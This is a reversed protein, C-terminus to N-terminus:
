DDDDIVKVSFRIMYHDSLKQRFEEPSMNKAKFVEMKSDSFEPQKAPVFARDLPSNAYKKNIYTVLDEQNLDRFGAKVFVKVAEESHSLANMDGIIVFDRDSFKNTLDDLLRNILRM